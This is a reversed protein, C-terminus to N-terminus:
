LSRLAFVRCSVHSAQWKAHRSDEEEEEEEVEEPARASTRSSACATKRKLMM